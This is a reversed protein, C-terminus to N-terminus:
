VIKPHILKYGAMKIKQNSVRANYPRVEDASEDWTVKPLNHSELVWDILERGLMPVDNVLNYTGQLQHTLAFDIASVIDDLHIWNTVYEGKGPRTTGAWSSFIKVLERGSGYIGGLRLICVKLNEHSAQLLIQETDFLIQGNNNAPKVPSQEDVSEGNRDGYVSYSGTYILQKVRPTHQLAAVITQATRLYTQEYPNAEIKRYEQPTAVRARKPAVSVVVVDQNQLLSRLALEDDGNIVVVQNAIKELEPIRQESTTTVTITYNKEQQWHRAVATGVYGCGIIAINM